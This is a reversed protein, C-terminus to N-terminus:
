TAAARRVRDVRARADELKGSDQFSFYSDQTVIIHDLLKIGMVIGAHVMRETVLEDMRSPSENGSPHNHSIVIGTAEVLAAERFIVKPDLSVNNLGGEAIKQYSLMNLNMNFYLALFIEKKSDMILPRIFESLLIPNSYRTRKEQVGMRRRGLEFAAALKTAKAIGLGPIRLLESLDAKALRQLSGFRQILLNGLDMASAKSSGSGMLIALLEASSLSAPGLTQMRERPKEGVPMQAIPMKLMEM